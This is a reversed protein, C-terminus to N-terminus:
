KDKFYQQLAAEWEELNPFKIALNGAKAILQANAEAREENQTTINCISETPKGNKRSLVKFFDDNGKNFITIVWENQTTKQGLHKM